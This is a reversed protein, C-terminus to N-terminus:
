ANHIVEDLTKIRDASIAEEANAILLDLRGSVLDTEMQRDWRDELYQQLRETLQRIETEPLQKIETELELFSKM